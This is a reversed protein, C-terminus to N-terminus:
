VSKCRMRSAYQAPPALAIRAVARPDGSHGREALNRSRFRTAAAAASTASTVLTVLWERRLVVIFRTDTHSCGRKEGSANSAAAGM